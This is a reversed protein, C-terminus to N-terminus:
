GGDGSGKGRYRGDGLREVVKGEIGEMVWVAYGGDGVMEVAKGEIGEM